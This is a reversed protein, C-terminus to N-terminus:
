IELDYEKIKNPKHLNLEKTLKLNNEKLIDIENKLKM